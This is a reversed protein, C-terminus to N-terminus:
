EILIALPNVWRSKLIGTKVFLIRIACIMTHHAVVHICTYAEKVRHFIYYNVHSKVKFYQLINKKSINENQLVNWLTANYKPVM